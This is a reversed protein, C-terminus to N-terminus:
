SDLLKLLDYLMEMPLGAVNSMSGRIQKVQYATQIGYAGAKDMPDGSAIYRDIEAESLDRFEVETTKVNAIMQRTAGDFIALGTLVRHSRGSLMQLMRRADEEDIPKGLVQNDLVVITDAAIIVAGANPNMHFAAKAKAEALLRATEAPTRGQIATEDIYAPQCRFKMGAAELLEQRRPSASALIMPRASLPAHRRVVTGALFDGVRQKRQNFLSAVAGIIGPFLVPFMDIGRLLNRILCQTISPPGGAVSRVRIGMLWKGPTRGSHAELVAAFIGLAALNIWFIENMMSVTFLEEYINIDGAAIHYAGVGISVIMSDIFIAIARSMIDAPRGPFALSLMRSRRCSRALLVVMLAILAFSFLESWTSEGPTLEALRSESLRGQPNECFAKAGASDILLWIMDRGTRVAAFDYSERLSEKLDRSPFASTKWGDDLYTMSVFRRNANHGVSDTSRAIFRLKGQDMFASLSQIEGLPLTAIDRWKNDKLAMHRVAGGSLDRNSKTWIFHLENRYILLFARTPTEIRATPHDTRQWSQDEAPRILEIEGNIYNVAIVSGDYWTIAKINIDNEPLADPMDHDPRVLAGDRTAVWLEGNKVTMGGIIGNYRGLDYWVEERRDFRRLEYQQTGDQPQTSQFAAWVEGPQATDVALRPSALYEGASVAHTLLCLCFIGLFLRRKM